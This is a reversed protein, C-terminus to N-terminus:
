NILYLSVTIRVESNAMTNQCYQAFAIIVQVIPNEKTEDNKVVQCLGIVPVTVVQFHKWLGALTVDPLYAEKIM